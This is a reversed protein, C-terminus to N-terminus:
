FISKLNNEKIIKEQKNYYLKKNELDETIISGMGIICNKGIKIEDRLVSNSGIYSLKGIKTNGGIACNFTISVFDGILCDHGISTNAGILVNNKIQCDSSIITNPYIIVGNGIKSNLILVEKSIYSALKIKKNYKLEEYVKKKINPDGLTILISLQDKNFNEKMENFSYIPIEYIKGKKYDDIIGVIEFQQEIKNLNIIDRAVGGAGYLFLKEM